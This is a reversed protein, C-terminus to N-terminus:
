HRVMIVKECRTEGYGGESLCQRVLLVKQYGRYGWFWRRCGVTKGYGGESIPTGGYSGESIGQRGM